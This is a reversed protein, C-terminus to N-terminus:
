ERDPLSSLFAHLWVEEGWPIEYPISIATANVTFGNSRTAASHPSLVPVHCRVRVSREDHQACPPPRSLECILWNCFKTAAVNKNHQKTRLRIFLFGLHVATVLLRCAFSLYTMLNRWLNGAMEGIGHIVADGHCSGITHEAANVASIMIAPGTTM